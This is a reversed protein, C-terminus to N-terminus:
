KINDDFEADLIDMESVKKNIREKKKKEKISQGYKFISLMPSFAKYFSYFLLCILIWKIM